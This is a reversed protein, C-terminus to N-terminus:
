WGDGPEDERQPPPPDPRLVFWFTLAGLAVVFGVAAVLLGGGVEFDLGIAFLGASM